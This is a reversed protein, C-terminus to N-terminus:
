FVFQGGPKQALVDFAIIIRPSDSTFPHVYHMYYPPFLVLKSEEPQLRRTSAYGHHVSIPMPNIFEIRGQPEPLDQPIKVYYVGSILNKSTPHFHPAQWNGSRLVNSWGVPWPNIFNAQEGFMLRLYDKVAPMVLESKFQQIASNTHQFLNVSSTQYGGQTSVTGTNAANKSSQKYNQELELLFDVLGANIKAADSFRRELVHVPFHTEVKDQYM